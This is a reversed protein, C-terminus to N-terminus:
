YTSYEDEKVDEYTENDAMSETLKLKGTRNRVKKEEYKTMQRDLKDLVVDISAYMDHSAEEARLVAGNAYINVDVVQSHSIRPNKEVHMEVVIEVIHQSYKDLKSLKKSIYDKLAPTVDINKGKIVLKAM